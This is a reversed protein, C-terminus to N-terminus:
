VDDETVEIEEINDVGLSSMGVQGSVHDDFIKSMADDIAEMIAERIADDGGSATEADVTIRGQIRVDDASFTYTKPDGSKSRPVGHEPVPAASNRGVGCETIVGDATRWVRWEAESEGEDSYAAYELSAIGTGMDRGCKGTAYYYRGFYCFEDPFIHGRYTHMRLIYTYGMAHDLCTEVM